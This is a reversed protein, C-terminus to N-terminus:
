ELSFDRWHFERVRAASPPLQLFPLLITLSYSPSRPPKHSQSKQACQKSASPLLQPPSQLWIVSLSPSVVSAPEALGLHDPGVLDDDDTILLTALLVKSNHRVELRSFGRFVEPRQLVKALVLSVKTPLLVSTPITLLALLLRHDSIQRQIIRM